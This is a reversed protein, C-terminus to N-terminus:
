LTQALEREQIATEVDSDLVLALLLGVLEEVFAADDGEHLGQVLGLRRDMGVDDVEVAGAIAELDLDRELPVLTVALADVGKGVVDVRDLPSGM